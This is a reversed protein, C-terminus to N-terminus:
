FSKPLKGRPKIIKADPTYWMKHYDGFKSKKLTNIAEEM